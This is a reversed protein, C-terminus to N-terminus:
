RCISGVPMEDLYLHQNYVEAVASVIGATQNSISGLKHNLVREVVHPPVKLRALKTAFTRRIDHLTWKSVHFNSLREHSLLSFLFDFSRERYKL